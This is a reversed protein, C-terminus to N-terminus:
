KGVRGFDDQLREIDDEGLYDGHQVEILMAPAPGPNAARHVAGLPIFISQNAALRTVTEGITVDVEGEVITWHEARHRHRQLSLRAGPNVVIRKVQHTAGLDLSQYYGWPRYIRIHGAAMPGRDKAVAAALRKVEDARALPAVLVADDRAVVVVGDLGLVGILPRDTSVYSGSTDLLVAEGHLVNGFDDKRAAEWVSAWTGLDSWDFRAAVVVARDTKEMVAYDFSIRPAAAFADAALRHFGEDVTIGTVAGRAAAATAPARVALEALAREATLMFNGSNWLYGAAVYGAATAADPKEVFAAVRNLGAAADLAAGPKIYGYGTAPNDPRIGFVVIGGAEAAARAAGVTATFGAIDRVVHDAALVLLLAGPDRGAVFAAAAAIAAATDRAVPELLITAAIGAAKVAEALLYRHEVNAVIVPPGFLAPDAIRALTGAFTTAGEVLPLFPKPLGDRSAPWLRTGAGGCLIIPTIM